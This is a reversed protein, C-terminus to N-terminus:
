FNFKKGVFIILLPYRRNINKKLLLSKQNDSSSDGDNNETFLISFRDMYLPHKKLFFKEYFILIKFPFFSNRSQIRLDVVSVTGSKRIVNEM